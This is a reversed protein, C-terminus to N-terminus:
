ELETGYCEERIANVTYEEEQTRADRATKLCRSCMDEYDQILENWKNEHPKLITDCCQCRNCLM